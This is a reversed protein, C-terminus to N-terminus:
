TRTRSRPSSSPLHRPPQYLPFHPARLRPPATLYHSLFWLTHAHTFLLHLSQVCCASLALSRDHFAAGVRADLARAGDGHETQMADPADEEFVRAASWRAQAAAQISLLIDRRQTTNKGGVAQVVRAGCPTPTLILTPSSRASVHRTTRWEKASHFCTLLLVRLRM